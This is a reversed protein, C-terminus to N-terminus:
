KWSGWLSVVVTVISAILLILLLPIGFTYKINDWGSFEGEKFKEMKHNHDISRESFDRDLNSM